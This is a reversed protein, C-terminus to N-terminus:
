AVSQEGLNRLFEKFVTAFSGFRFSGLCRSFHISVACSNKIYFVTRLLTKNKLINALAFARAVKRLPSFYHCICFNYSNSHFLRSHICSALCLIKRRSFRFHNQGNWIFFCSIIHIKMKEAVQNVLTFINYSRYIFCHFLLNPCIDFFVRRLMAKFRRIQM